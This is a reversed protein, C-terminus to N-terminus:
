AQNPPTLTIRWESTGIVESQVTYGLHGAQYPIDAACVADDIMVTVTEGGKEKLRKIAEITKITPLPCEEGRLDMEM